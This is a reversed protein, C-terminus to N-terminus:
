YNEYKEFRVVFSCLYVCRTEFNVIFYKEFFLIVTKINRLNKNLKFEASFKFETSSKIVKQKEFYVVRIKFNTRIMIVLKM